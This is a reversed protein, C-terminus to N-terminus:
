WPFIDASKLATHLDNKMHEAANRAASAFNMNKMEKYAYLIKRSSNIIAGYGQKDFCPMTDNATAGQAGYGPVLFISKPLISRIERAENPHTAGVVAGISSFGRDGKGTEWKKILAAVHLYVPKNNVQLDQIESSSPNSTKVLIFIGKEQKNCVDIFPAVGDSGLYPNVTIADVDFASIEKEFLKTKGLFANAYAASTSGIDNRKGDAIVIYGEKKAAAITEEFAKIGQWGLQEYYALQPKVAPIIDKLEHLIQRNFEVIAKTVAEISDGYKDKHENRLSPPLLEPQPDLGIVSPNQTKDIANILRDAFM